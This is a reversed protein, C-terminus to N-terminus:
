CEEDDNGHKTDGTPLERTAVNTSALSAFRVLFRDKKILGGVPVRSIEIFARACSVVADMDQITSVGYGTVM